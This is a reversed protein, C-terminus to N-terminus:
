RLADRHDLARLRAKFPAAVPQPGDLKRVLPAEDAERAEGGHVDRDGECRSDLDTPTQSSGEPTLAKCALRGRRRDCETEDLAIQLLDHREGRYAIPARAPHHLAQAHAAVRRLIEVM